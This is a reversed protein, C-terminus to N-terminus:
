ATNRALHQMKDEDDTTRSTKSSPSSSCSSQLLDHGGTIPTVGGDSSTSVSTLHMNMPANGHQQQMSSSLSVEKYVNQVELQQQTMLGSQSLESSDDDFDDSTTQV